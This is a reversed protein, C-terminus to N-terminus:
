VWFCASIDVYTYFTLSFDKNLIISTSYIKKFINDFSHVEWYDTFENILFSFMNKTTRKKPSPPPTLLFALIQLLHTNRKVSKSQLSVTESSNTGAVSGRGNITYNAIDNVHPIWCDLLIGRVLYKCWWTMPLLKIM